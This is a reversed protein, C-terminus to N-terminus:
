TLHRDERVSAEIGAAIAIAQDEQLTLTLIEMGVPLGPEDSSKVIDKAAGVPVSIAPFLLQSAIM